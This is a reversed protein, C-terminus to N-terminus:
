ARDEAIPVPAPDNEAHDQVIDLADVVALIVAVLLLAWAARRLLRGQKSSELKRGQSLLVIGLLILVAITIASM